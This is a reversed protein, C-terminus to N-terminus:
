QYKDQHAIYAYNATYTIDKTANATELHIKTAIPVVNIGKVFVAQVKYCMDVFVFVIVLLIGTSISGVNFISRNGGVNDMLVISDKCVCVNAMRFGVIIWVNLIKNSINM